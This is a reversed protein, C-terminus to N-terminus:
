AKKWGSVSKVFFKISPAGMLIERGALNSIVGFIGQSLRGYYSLLVYTLPEGEGKM